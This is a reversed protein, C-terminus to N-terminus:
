CSTTCYTWTTWLRLVKNGSPGIAFASRSALEDFSAEPLSNQSCNALQTRKLISHDETIALQMWVYRFMSSTTKIDNAYM